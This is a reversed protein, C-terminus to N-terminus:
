DTSANKLSVSNLAFFAVPLMRETIACQKSQDQIQAFARM